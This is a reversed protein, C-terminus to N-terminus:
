QLRKKKKIENILALQYIYDIAQGINKKNDIQMLLDQIQNNNIYVFNESSINLQYAEDQIEYIKDIILQKLEEKDPSNHNDLLSLQASSNKCIYEYVSIKGFNNKYKQYKHFFQQIKDNDMVIMAKNVRHKKNSLSKLKITTDNRPTMIHSNYKKNFLYHIDDEAPDRQEEEIDKFLINTDKNFQLMKKSNIKIM